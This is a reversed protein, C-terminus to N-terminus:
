KVDYSKTSCLRYLCALQRQYYSRLSRRCVSQLYCCWLIWRRNQAAPLPSSWGPKEDWNGHRLRRLKGEPSFFSLIYRVWIRMLGSPTRSTLIPPSRDRLLSQALSLSRLIDHITNSPWAATIRDYMSAQFDTLDWMSECNFFLEAM